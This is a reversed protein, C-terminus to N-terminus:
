AADWRERRGFHGARACNEWNVQALQLAEHTAALSPDYRRLWPALAAGTLVRGDVEAQVGSPRADRPGWALTVRAERVFGTEVMAVAIQRARLAGARDLRWPDKGSLAGGGMAVQPGYYDMVLKRGTQGNDNMPGGESFPGAENVRVPLSSAPAELLEPMCVSEETLLELFTRRVAREIAVISSAVVHQVSCVVWQVAWRVHGDPGTGVPELALLVKGDPGAGLARERLVLALLADRLRLVLHQELPLWRTEPTGVAYGVHIAQDDALERVSQEDADAVDLTCHWHLDVDAPRPCAYDAGDGVGPFAVGFGAREYVGRVTAEAFERAIAEGATSCRGNVHCVPGHVAVEVQVIARPDRALAIDVLGDAIQDALKDPHGPLVAEAYRVGTGAAVGAQVGFTSGNAYRNM